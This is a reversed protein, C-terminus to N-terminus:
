ILTMGSIVERLSNRESATPKVRRSATPCDERWRAAGGIIMSRSWYDYAPRYTIPAHFFQIQASNQSDPYPRLSVGSSARSIM